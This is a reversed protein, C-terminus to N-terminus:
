RPCFSEPRARILKACLEQYREAHHAYVRRVQTTIAHTENTTDIIQMMERFLADRAASMVKTVQINTGSSIHREWNIEGNPSSVIFHRIFLGDPNEHKFLVAKEWNKVNEPDRPDDMLKIIPGYGPATRREIEGELRDLRRSTPNTM